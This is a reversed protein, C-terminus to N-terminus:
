NDGKEYQHSPLFMDNLSQYIDKAFCKFANENVKEVDIELRLENRRMSLIYVFPYTDALENMLGLQQGFGGKFRDKQEVFMLFFRGTRALQDRYEPVFLHFLWDEPFVDSLINRLKVVKPFLRNKGSRFSTYSSVYRADEKWLPNIWGNESPTRKELDNIHKKFNSVSGSNFLIYEQHSSFQVPAHERQIITYEFGLKCPLIAIHCHLGNELTFVQTGKESHYHAGKSAIYTQLSLAYGEYMNEEMDAERAEIELRKVQERIIDHMFSIEYTPLEYHYMQKKEKEVLVFTFNTNTVLNLKIFARYSEHCTQYFLLSPTEERWGCKLLYTKLTECTHFRSDILKSM